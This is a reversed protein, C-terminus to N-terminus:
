EVPVYVKFLYARSCLETKEAGSYGYFTLTFHGTGLMGTDILQPTSDICWDYGQYDEGSTKSNSVIAAFVSVEAGNNISYTLREYKVESFVYFRYLIPSGYKYEEQLYEMNAVYGEKDGKSCSTAILVIGTILGAGLLVAVIIYIIRKM